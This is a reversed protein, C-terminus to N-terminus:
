TWYNAPATTCGYRRPQHLRRPEHLTTDHLFAKDHSTTDSATTAHTTLAHATAPTSTLPISTDRSTTPFQSTVPACRPTWVRPHRGAYARAPRTTSHTQSSSCIDTRCPADPATDILKTPAFPASVSLRQSTSVLWQRHTKAHAPRTMSPQTMVPNTPTPPDSPTLTPSSVCYDVQHSWAHAALPRSSGDSLSPANPSTEVPGPKDHLTAISQM